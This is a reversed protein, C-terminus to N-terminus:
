FPLDDPKPSSGVADAHEEWSGDEVAKDLAQLSDFVYAEGGLDELADASSPSFYRGERSWSNGDRDLLFCTEVIKLTAPTIAPFNVHGGRVLFVAVAGRQKLADEFMPALSDALRTWNFRVWDNKEAVRAVAPALVSYPQRTPEVNLAMDYNAGVRWGLARLDRVRQEQRVIALWHLKDHFIVKHRPGDYFTPAIGEHMLAADIQTEVHERCATNLAAVVDEIDEAADLAATLTLSPKVNNYDGLSHVRSYGVSVTKIEMRREEPDM